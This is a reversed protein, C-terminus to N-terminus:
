TSLWFQKINSLFQQDVFCFLIITSNGGVGAEVISKPFLNETPLLLKAGNNVADLVMKDIELLLNGTKKM